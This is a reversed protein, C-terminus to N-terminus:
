LSFGNNKKKQKEGQLMSHFGDLLLVGAFPLFTGTILYTAEKMKMDELTPFRGLRRMMANLKVRNLHNRVPIIGGFRPVNEGKFNRDMIGTFHWEVATPHITNPDCKSDLYDKTSFEGVPNNIYYDSFMTPAEGSIMKMLIKAKDAYSEIRNGDSDYIGLRDHHTWYTFPLNLEVNNTDKINTITDFYFGFMKHFLLADQSKRDMIGVNIELAM